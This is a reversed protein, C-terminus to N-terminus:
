QKPSSVSLLKIRTRSGVDEEKIATKSRLEEEELKVAESGKAQKKRQRGGKKSSGGGRGKVARKGTAEPEEEEEEKKVGAAINQDLDQDIEAEQARSRKRFSATWHLSFGHCPSLVSWFNLPGQKAKEPYFRVNQAGKQNIDRCFLIKNVAMLAPQQGAPAM